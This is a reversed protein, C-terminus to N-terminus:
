KCKTWSSSEFTQIEQTKRKEIEKRKDKMKEKENNGGLEFDRLTGVLEQPGLL